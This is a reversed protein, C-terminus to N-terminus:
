LSSAGLSHLDVTDDLQELGSYDLVLELGMEIDGDFALEHRNDGAVVFPKFFWVFYYTYKLKANNFEAIFEKIEPRYVFLEFCEKGM